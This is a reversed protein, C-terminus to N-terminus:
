ELTIYEMSVMGGVIAHHMINNIFAAEAVYPGKTESSSERSGALRTHLQHHHNRQHLTSPLLPRSSQLLSVSLSPSLFLSFVSTPPRLTAICISLDFARIEHGYFYFPLYFDRKIRNKCNTPLNWTLLRAHSVWATGNSTETEAWHLKREQQSQTAWASERQTFSVYM